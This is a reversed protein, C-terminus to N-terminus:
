HRESLLEARQVVTIGILEDLQQQAKPWMAEARPRMALRQLYLSLNTILTDNFLLGSATEIATTSANWQLWLRDQQHREARLELEKLFNYYRRKTQFRLRRRVSRLPMIAMKRWPDFEKQLAVLNDMQWTVGHHALWVGYLLLNVDADWEDQLVLCLRALEDHSYLALSFDWFPNNALPADIM